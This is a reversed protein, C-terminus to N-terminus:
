EKIIKKVWVGASNKATVIYVGAHLASVDITTEANIQQTFYEKGSLDYLSVRFAEASHPLSIQLQHNAPNPYVSFADARKNENIGAALPNTYQSFFKWIELSASFDHNTVGINFAAGPWTHGGGDVKYFAVATNDDCGGYDYRTATCGDNTSYNTVPTVTPQAACGNHNVWYKILTDIHTFQANGTYPVTPDATGHIQMVPITRSASCTSYLLTTMGGTVSAIATIRDTEACALTFSMFGGNSMGTSYVRSADINYTSQLHDLLAMIFGVDDITGVFGANWFRNNSLDYTGNPLCIIFNATDAIPRFNGYLIQQDKNSSYGHLNFVLPVATSGTYAAPIYLTYERTLGDHQFTLNLTQQAAAVFVALAFIVTLLLKSM